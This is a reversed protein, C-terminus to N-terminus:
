VEGDASRVREMEDLATHVFALVEDGTLRFGLRRAGKAVVEAAYDAKAEGWTEFAHWDEPREGKFKEAIQETARVAVRAIDIVHAIREPTLKALVFARVLPYAGALVAIILAVAQDM